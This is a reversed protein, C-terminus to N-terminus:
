VLWGVTPWWMSLVAMLLIGWLVACGILTMTGKFGTEETAEPYELPVPRRREVSRRVADDLEQARVADLWSVPGQRAAGAKLGLMGQVEEPNVNISNERETGAREQRDVEEEFVRVLAQWPDWGDWSEEHEKGGADVYRITVPGTWEHPILVEARG